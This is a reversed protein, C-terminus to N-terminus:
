ESWEVDLAVPMWPLLYSSFLQIAHKLLIDRGEPLVRLLWLGGRQAFLGPRQLFGERFSTVVANVDANKSTNLLQTACQFLCLDAQSKEDDSLWVSPWVVDRPHLGCLVKVLPLAAEDLSPNESETVSSEPDTVSSEVDGMVMYNLLHAAKQQYQEDKFWGEELWNLQTFLDTLAPIVFYLGANGIPVAEIAVDNDHWQPGQTYSQTKLPSVPTLKAEDPLAEVRSLQRLGAEWQSASVWSAVSAPLYFHGQQVAQKLFSLWHAYHPLKQWAATLKQVAQSMGGLGQKDSLLLRWGTQAFPTLSSVGAKTFTTRWRPSQSQSLVSVMLAALVAGDEGYPWHELLALKQKLSAYAVWRSLLTDDREFRNLLQLADETNEVTLVRIPPMADFTNNQYWWPFVGTRLCFLAADEHSATDTGQVQIHGAGQHGGSNSGSGAGSDPKARSGPNNSDAFAMPPISDEDIRQGLYGLASEVDFDDEFFASDEGDFDAMEHLFDQFDVPLDDLHTNRHESGTVKAGNPNTSRASARKIRGQPHPHKHRKTGSDGEGKIVQAKNEKVQQRVAKELMDPLAKILVHEDLHRRFHGLDLELRDIRIIDDSQSIRNFIRNLASKLTSRFLRSVKDQERKAQSEDETSFAFTVRHILHKTM